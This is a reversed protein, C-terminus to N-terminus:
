PDLVGGGECAWITLEDELNLFLEVLVDVRKEIITCQHARNAEPKRQTAASRNM